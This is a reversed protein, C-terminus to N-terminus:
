RQLRSILATDSYYTYNIVPPKEYRIKNLQTSFRIRDASLSDTMKKISLQISDSQEALIVIKKSLSDRLNKEAKLFEARFKNSNDVFIYVFLLYIIINVALIVLFQNKKM